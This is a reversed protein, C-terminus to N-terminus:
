QVWVKNLGRTWSARGTQACFPKRLVQAHLQPRRGASCTGWWGSLELGEVGGLEADPRGAWNGWEWDRTEVHLDLRTGGSNWSWFNSFEACGDESYCLRLIVMILLVNSINLCYLFHLRFSLRGGQGLELNSWFNQSVSPSCFWESIVNQLGLLWWSLSKSTLAPQVLFFLRSGPACIVLKREAIIVDLLLSKLIVLM